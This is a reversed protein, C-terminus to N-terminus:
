ERQVDGSLARVLFEARSHVDFARYIAAVHNHVTCPSLGLQRAIRKESLGEVLLRFVRRQAESLCEQGMTRAPPQGLHPPRATDLSSDPEGMPEQQTATLFSLHGFRVQSGTKAAVTGAVRVDDIFTGNKSALDTVRMGEEDVCLFAHRRSVSPHEIVLDCRTSRGLLSTAGSPVVIVARSEVPVQILVIHRPM